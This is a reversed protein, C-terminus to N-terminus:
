ESNAQGVGLRDDAVHDHDADAHCGGRTPEFAAPEGQAVANHAVGSQVGAESTDVRGAIHRPPRVALEVALLHTDLMPRVGRLLTEYYGM